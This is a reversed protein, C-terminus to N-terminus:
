TPINLTAVLLYSLPFTQPARELERKLNSLDDPHEEFRSLQLKNELLASFIDALTHHFTYCTKGEYAEKGLYDLDGAEEYPTKDFYGFTESVKMDDEVIASFPHQEMIVLHGGDKLQSTATAFFAKLDPLWCLAGVTLLVYDFRGYAADPLDYVDAVEFTADLHLGAALVRASHIASSSIDVGVCRGANLKKLSVLEEGDNCCLHLVSRGELGYDLFAEHLPAPLTHYNKRLFKKKHGSKKKYSQHRPNVEDWAERAMTTFHKIEKKLPQDGREPMENGASM